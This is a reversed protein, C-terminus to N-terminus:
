GFWMMKKIGIVAFEYSLQMHYLLVVIHTNLRCNYSYSFHFYSFYKNLKKEYSCLHTICLVPETIMPGLCCNWLPQCPLLLSPLLSM